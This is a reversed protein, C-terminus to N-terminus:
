SSPRVRPRVQEVDGALVREVGDETRLLLAGDIDIDEAVGRLERRESKVLVELGLTSSLARWRDRVPGFGENEHVVLWQELLKMLRAVFAARDVKRGRVRM